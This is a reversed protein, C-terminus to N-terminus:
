AARSAAERGELVARSTRQLDAILHRLLLGRASNVFFHDGTLIHARFQARTQLAWARVEHPSAKPDADGVWATIAVNLPAEQRYRYTENIALDARLTPLALRMLERNELVAPPVGGLARLQALLESEALDHLPRRPDTLQPAIRGSVHLALPMRLGGSRLARTVAFALLAGMSHGFVAFPADLHPALAPVLEDVLPELRDYPPETFRNERGPLQVPCVAVGANAFPRRWSRYAAAGSGAHPFCFLRLPLSRDPAPM